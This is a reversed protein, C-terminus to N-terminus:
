GTPTATVRIFGEPYSLPVLGADLFVSTLATELATRIGTISAAAHVDPDTAHAAITPRILQDPHWAVIVAVGDSQATLGSDPGFGADALVAQVRRVLERSM